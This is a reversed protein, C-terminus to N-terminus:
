PLPGLLGAHDPAYLLPQSQRLDACDPRVQHGGIHARCHKPSFRLEAMAADVKAKTEASVYPHNNLVRSVTKVAVGALKAVDRINARPEHASRRRIARVADAHASDARTFVPPQGHPAAIDHTGKGYTKGSWLHVWDGDPM